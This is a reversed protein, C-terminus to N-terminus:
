KLVLVTCNKTGAETSVMTPADGAGQSSEPGSGHSPNLKYHRSLGGLGIYCKDCTDCKFAKPALNFNVDADKKKGDEDEDEVSIESYDDSDSQHSDALDETKIFKYDRAKHKPPRSVRGSRTQIKQPKKARKRGRPREKEKEKEKVPATTPPAPAPAPAAAPASPARAAQTIPVPKTQTAAPTTATATAAVTVTPMSVAVQTVKPAPPRVPSGNIPIQVLPKHLVPAASSTVVPAPQQLLLQIPPEGPNQLIYQQQGPLPQIHIVQPSSVVSATTVKGRIPTVAVPKPQLLTVTQEKTETKQPVQVQIRITEM